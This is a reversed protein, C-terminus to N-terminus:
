GQSVGPAASCNRTPRRRMPVAEPAALIANANSGSGGADLFKIGAIKVNWNVGAVGIGNNGVGGITGSCHTGHFHDDMPDGDNNVFDYGHVDDIFGNMDDDIGNGPIEGPNTWANAALDPHTYDIGTDIVGVLLNPNGTFVDWAQPASIKTMGYLQNFLPDNPIQQIVPSTKIETAHLVYDPEAYKVNPNKKALAIAQDVTMGPKLKVLEGNIIALDKMKSAGLSNRLSAREPAQTGDKY